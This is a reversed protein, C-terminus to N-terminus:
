RSYPPPGRPPPRQLLFSPPLRPGRTWRTGTACLAGLLCVWLVALLLPPLVPLAQSPKLVTGAAWTLDIDQHQGDDHHDAHDGAASGHVSMPPEGGDLCLHVHTGAAQALLVLV